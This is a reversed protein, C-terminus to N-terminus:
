LGTHANIFVSHATDEALTAYLHCLNSGPCVKTIQNARTWETSFVFADTIHVGYYDNFVCICVGKLVIVLFISLGLWLFLM